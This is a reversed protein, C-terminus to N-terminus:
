ISEGDILLIYKREDEGELFELDDHSNDDVKMEALSRKSLVNAQHGFFDRITKIIQRESKEPVNVLLEIKRLREQLVEKEAKLREIMQYTEFGQNEKNQKEFFNTPGPLGNSSAKKSTSKYGGAIEAKYARLKIPDQHYIPNKYELAAKTPITKELFTFDPEINDRKAV